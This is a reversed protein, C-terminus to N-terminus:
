LCCFGSESQEIRFTGYIDCFEFIPCGDHKGPVALVEKKKKKKKFVLNFSLFHFASCM